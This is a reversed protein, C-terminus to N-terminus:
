NPSSHAKAQSKSHTKKTTATSSTKPNVLVPHSHGLANVAIGALFDIYEEGDATYLKCGKGHDIVLPYRGFVPLYYKETEEIVTKYDM